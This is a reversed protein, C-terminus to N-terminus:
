VEKDYFSAFINSGGMALDIVNAGMGAAKM